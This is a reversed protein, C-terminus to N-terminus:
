RPVHGVHGEVMVMGELLEGAAARMHPPIDGDSQVGKLMEQIAWKQAPTTAILLSTFALVQMAALVSIKNVGDVSDVSNSANMTCGHPDWMM